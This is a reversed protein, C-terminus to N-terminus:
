RFVEPHRAKSKKTALTLLAEGIKSPSHKQMAIIERRLGEPEECNYSLLKDTKKQVAKQFADEVLKFEASNLMRKFEILNDFIVIDAAM